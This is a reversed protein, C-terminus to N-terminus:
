DSSWVQQVKHVSSCVQQFVSVSKTIAGRSIRMEPIMGPTTEGSLDALRTPLSETSMDAVLSWKTAYLRSVTDVKAAAPVLETSM